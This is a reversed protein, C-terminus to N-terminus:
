EAKLLFSIIYCKYCIHIASLVINKLSITLYVFVFVTEHLIDKCDAGFHVPRPLLQMHPIQPSTLTRLNETGELTESYGMTPALASLKVLEELGLVIISAADFLM